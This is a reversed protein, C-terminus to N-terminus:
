RKKFDRLAELVDKVNETDEEVYEQSNSFRHGQLWSFTKKAEYKDLADNLYRLGEVLRADSLQQLTPAAYFYGHICYFLGGNLTETGTNIRKTIVFLSEIVPGEAELAYYVGQTSTLRSQIDIGTFQSQMKLIENLCGRDYFQSNSFYEIVNDRTLPNAALFSPDYFCMHDEDAM